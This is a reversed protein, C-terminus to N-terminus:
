GNKPMVMLGNSAGRYRKLAIEIECRRAWVVALLVMCYGIGGRGVTSAISELTNAIEEPQEVSLCSASEMDTRGHMLGIACVSRWILSISM